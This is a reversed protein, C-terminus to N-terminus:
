VMMTSYKTYICTYMYMYGYYIIIITTPFQSYLIYIRTYIIRICAHVLIWAHISIIYYYYLVLAHLLLSCVSVTNPIFSMSEPLLYNWM